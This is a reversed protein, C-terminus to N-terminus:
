HQCLARNFVVATDNDGIVSKIQNWVAGQLDSIAMRHDCLQAMNLLSECLLTNTHLILASKYVHAAKQIVPRLDCIEPLFGKCHHM